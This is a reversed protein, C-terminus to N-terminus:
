TVQLTQNANPSVINSADAQSEAGDHQISYSAEKETSSTLDSYKSSPSSVKQAALKEGDQQTTDLARKGPSTTVESSEQVVPEESTVERKEQFDEMVSNDVALTEEVDKTDAELNDETEATGNTKNRSTSRLTVGFPNKEMQVNTLERGM